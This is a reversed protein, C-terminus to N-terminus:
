RSGPTGSPRAGSLHARGAPAGDRLLMQEVLGTAGPRLPRTVGTAVFGFREYSRRAAANTVAVDLHLGRGHEAAAEDLVRLVAHAVGRGREAPAVWMAVVHLLGPLDPYAGGLAVPRGDRRALVALSEPGDLRDRWDQETFASEGAHTAGFADPADLLARLRLDRWDSWDAGTALSVLLGDGM